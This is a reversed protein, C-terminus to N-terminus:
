RWFNYNFTYTSDNTKFPHPTTSCSASSSSSASSLSSMYSTPKSEKQGPDPENGNQSCRQSIIKQSTIVDCHNNNKSSAMTTRESSSMGTEMAVRDALRQRFAITQRWLLAALDFTWKNKSERSRVQMKYSTGPTRKRFWVEFSLGDDGVSETLGMETTRLSFKYSYFDQGSAKKKTKTFLLIDEYLFVHYSTRKMKTTVMMEDRRLLTGQEELNVDCGLICDAALLDEGHRLEFRVMELAAEIEQFEPMHLPCSHLLRKLMLAYKTLRQIPKLLFSELDMACNLEKQKLQFFKRGCESMLADSKPKNKSYLSYLYFESEHKMFAAGLAYPHGRCLNLSEHFRKSHFEYIKEINGFIIYKKGRLTEPLSVLASQTQHRQQLLPIYNTIVHYLSNIYDLETSMLENTLCALSKKQKLPDQSLADDIKLIEVEDSTPHPSFTAAAATTSPSSLSSSKSSSSSPSTKSPTTPKRKFTQRFWGYKRKFPKSSDDNNNNCNQIKNPALIEWLSHSKRKM